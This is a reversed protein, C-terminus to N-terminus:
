VLVSRHTQILADVALPLETMNEATVAERNNYLHGLMLKVAALLEPASDASALGATFTISASGYAIPWYGGAAPYVSADVLRADVYVQTAGDADLYEVDGLATVPSIPLDVRAPFSRQTWRFDASALVVGSVREVHSIAADRLASILTDEDDHLVRLHAKADALSLIADGNIPTLRTLTM